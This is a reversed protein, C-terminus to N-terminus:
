FASANKQRTIVKGYREIQEVTFPLAAFSPIMKALYAFVEFIDMQNVRMVLEIMDGTAGCGRCHHWQGEDTTDQYIFLQFSDCSPCRVVCPLAEAAFEINLISLVDTWLVFRNLNTPPRFM